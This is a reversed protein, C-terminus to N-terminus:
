QINKLFLIKIFRLMKSVGLIDFKFLRAGVFSSSGRLDINFLMPIIDIDTLCMFHFNPLKQFWSVMCGYFWLVMFYLDMFQLVIFSYVWIAMFGYFWLVVFGYFWVVKCGYFWLVMSSYIWLVMCGYFWLVMFGSIWFVMFGYFWAIIARYPAKYPFFLRHTQMRKRM